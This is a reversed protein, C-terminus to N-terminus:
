WLVPRDSARAVSVFIHFAERSGVGTLNAARTPGPRRAAGRRTM